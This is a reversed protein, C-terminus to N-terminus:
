LVKRLVSVLNIIPHDILGAEPTHLKLPYFQLPELYTVWSTDRTHPNNQALPFKPRLSWLTRQEERESGLVQILPRAGLFVGDAVIDKQGM